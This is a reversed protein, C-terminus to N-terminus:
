PEDTEGMLTSVYDITRELDECVVKYICDKCSDIHACDVIEHMSVLGYSLALYMARFQAYKYVGKFFTLM